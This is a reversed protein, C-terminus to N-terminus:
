NYKRLWSSQTRPVGTGLSDQPRLLPGQSVAGGVGPSSFTVGARDQPPAPPLRRLLLFPGQRAGDQLPVPRPQASATMRYHSSVRLLLQFSRFFVSFLCPCLLAPRVAPLPGPVQGPGQGVHGSHPLHGATTNPLWCAGPPAPSFVLPPLAGTQLDRFQSPGPLSPCLLLIM